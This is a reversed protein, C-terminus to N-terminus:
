DEPVFMERFAEFGEPTLLIDVDNTARRHGQAYVAMGGVVAYPIKKSALKKAVRQMTKHVADKGQFFMDLERLEPWFATSDKSRGAGARTRAM